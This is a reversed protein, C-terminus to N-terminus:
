FTNLEVMKAKIYININNIDIRALQSLFRINLQIM